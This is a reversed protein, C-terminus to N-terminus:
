REVGCAQLFRERDFKPDDSALTAALMRASQEAGMRFGDEWISTTPARSLIVGRLAAAILADKKTM